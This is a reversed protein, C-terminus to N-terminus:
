YGVGDLFQQIIQQHGFAIDLQPLENRRFYGADENENNLALTGVAKGAYYRVRWPQGEPDYEASIIEKFFRREFVLGTEEEVERVVTDDLDEGPDPKGGVLAWQGAGLGRARLALFIRLEDDYIIARAAEKMNISISYEAIDIKSRFLCSTFIRM